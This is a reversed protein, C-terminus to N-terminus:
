FSYNYSTSTAQCDFHLQKSFLVVMPPSLNTPSFLRPKLAMLSKMSISEHQRPWLYENNLVILSLCKAINVFFQQPVGSFWSFCFRKAWCINGM